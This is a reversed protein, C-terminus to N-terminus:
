ARLRVPRMVAFVLKIPHVVGSEAGSQTRSFHNALEELLIMEDPLIM